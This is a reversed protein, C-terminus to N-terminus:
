YDSRWSLYDPGTWVSEPGTRLFQASTRDWHSIQTSQVLSFKPPELRCQDAGPGSAVSAAASVPRRGLRPFMEEAAAASPFVLLFDERFLHPFPSSLSRASASVHLDRLQEGHHLAILRHHVEQRSRIDPLEWGFHTSSYSGAPLPPLLLLRRARRSKM